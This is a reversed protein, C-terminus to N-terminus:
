EAWTEPPIIISQRYAELSEATIRIGSTVKGGRAAAENAAVLKGDRVLDLITRPKKGLIQGAEEASYLLNRLIHREKVEAIDSSTIRLRPMEGTEPVKTQVIANVKM